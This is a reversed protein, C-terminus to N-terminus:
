LDILYSEFYNIQLTCRGHGETHTLRKFLTDRFLLWLDMVDIPECNSM